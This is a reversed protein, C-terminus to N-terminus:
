CPLDPVVRQLRPRRRAEVGQLHRGHRRPTPPRAAHLPTRRARRPRAVNVIQSSNTILLLEHQFYFCNLSAYILKSLLLFVLM